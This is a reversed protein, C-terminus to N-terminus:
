SGVSQHEYGLHAAWALQWSSPEHREMAFNASVQGGMLNSTMGWFQLFHTCTPDSHQSRLPSKILWLDGYNYSSCSVPQLSAVCGYNEEPYVFEGRSIGTLFTALGEVDLDPRDSIQQLWNYQQQTLFQSLPKIMKSEFAQADILLETFLFQQLATISYSLCPQTDVM